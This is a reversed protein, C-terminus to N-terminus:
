FLLAPFLSISSIIELMKLRGYTHFWLIFVLSTILAIDWQSGYVYVKSRKVSVQLSALRWCYFWICGNHNWFLLLYAIWLVDSSLAYPFQENIRQKSVEVFCIRSVKWVEAKNLKSNIRNLLPYVRRLFVFLFVM